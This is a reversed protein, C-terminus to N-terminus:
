VALAADEKSNTRPDTANESADYRILLVPVPANRAVAEADSGLAARRLGRRGHTGLVILDANWSKADQVIIDCIREHIAEHIATEAAVGHQRAAEAATDLLANGAEALREAIDPAFVAVNPYSLISEDAVHVIRLRASTQAAIHIAEHLGRRGTASGDIAVLIRKYLFDM